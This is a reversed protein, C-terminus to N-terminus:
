PLTGYIPVISKILPILENKCYETTISDIELLESLIAGDCKAAYGKLAAPTIDLADAITFDYWFLNGALGRPAKPRQETIGSVIVALAYRQRMQKDGYKCVLRLAAESTAINTPCQISQVLITKKPISEYPTAAFTIDPERANLMDCVIRSIDDSVRDCALAAFPQSLTEIYANIKEILKLKVGEERWSDAMHRFLMAEANRDATGNKEDLLYRALIRTITAGENEMVKRIYRSEFQKETLTDIYKSSKTFSKTKITIYYYLPFREPKGPYCYKTIRRNLYYVVSATGGATKVRQRM